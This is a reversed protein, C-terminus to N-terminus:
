CRLPNSQINGGFPISAYLPTTQIILIQNPELDIHGSLVAEVEFVKDQNKSFM